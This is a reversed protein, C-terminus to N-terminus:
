FEEDAFAMITEKGAALETELAQIEPTFLSFFHDAAKRKGELFAKGYNAVTEPKTSQDAMKAWLVALTTLAYMRLLIPAVTAAQEPDTMANSM